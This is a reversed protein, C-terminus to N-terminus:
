EEADVAWERFMAIMHMLRQHDAGQIESLTRLANSANEDLIELQSAIKEHLRNHERWQEDSTLKYTNWRKQDDAQFTTWEQKMRDANLRHMETIENIRRELREIIADLDDKMQKLNRYIEEYILMREDLEGGRKEFADFRDEWGKWAREFEVLKLNQQEFRLNQAERVESESASIEATRVELRRVRDEVTDLEGHFRDTKMRLESAETQLDAVRKADQKRGEEISAFTRARNDDTAMFDEIRKKMGDLDRTIRIEEKSRSDLMERVESLKSLDSRLDDMAKAQEKLDVKRLKEIAKEKETRREEADKLQRSVEKRHGVLTDDIQHIRSALASLRTMEGSLEVGQQTQKELTEEMSSIKEKLRSIEEADKRRQEDLWELRKEIQEAEM